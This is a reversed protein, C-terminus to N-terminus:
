FKYSAGVQWSRDRGIWCYNSDYCTYTFKNTLNQAGAKVTLGKLSNSVVGMDYAVAADFQTNGGIAPVSNDPTIATKGQYRMGAGLMLGNLPGSAFTYDSWLNLTNEPVQTARQGQYRDDQVNIARTYAYSAILNLNELPRSVASFEFGKSEIEGTQRYNALGGVYTNDTTLVNKQNIKFVSATLTTAYDALLTKVGGEVQKSTTPKVQTASLTGIPSVPLFGESYSIFPAIGNDFQYLAGLRKTVRDQDVWSKDGGNLHDTTTSRYDDYRLSAILNLGGFEVQDQLYYGAQNFSMHQRTAAYLGLNNDTVVGHDPNQMDIAPYVSGYDYNFNANLRQYDVGALLHHKWEGLSLTKTLQNDINVNNLSEDTTYGFRSLTTDSGSTGTSYISRQYSEVHAYRAKQVVGWGSDFQHEFTYGILTQRQKFGNWRDGAYDDRSASGSRLYALPLPNSPTLSPQDQYIADITLRTQDSPQWSVSPALLYGEHKTTQAQDDGASAKGIFRYNWDSDAIQGTSDLTGERLARNGTTFEVETSQEKKPTKGQINVLGGPSANGYLVSSPGKLIDVQEILIPDIGAKTNGSVNYPLQLGNYYEHEASFGRIKYESMYTTSGRMETAVGAEYRLIENLSNAHRKEIEAKSITDITQATRSEPVASKSASNTYPAVSNEASGGGATVVLTGDSNATAAQALPSLSAAISLALLSFHRYGHRAM